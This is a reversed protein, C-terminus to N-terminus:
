MEGCSFDDFAIDVTAWNKPLIGKQVYNHITSFPWDIARKVYGHKVPNYHIYDVHREFDGDDKIQHEWYRRQWIGRERKNERSLRIHETKEIKRSFGSKILSWRMPYDADGEPLRWIAHIHEPLVVMAEIVFPHSHKIKNTILRLDDMRKQLLDSQRDALNVTFFYSAGPTQSKSLAHITIKVILNLIKADLQYFNM